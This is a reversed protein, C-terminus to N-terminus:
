GLEGVGKRDTFFALPPPFLYSILPFYISFASFGCDRPSRRFSEEHLGILKESNTVQISVYFEYNLVSAGKRPNEHWYHSIM